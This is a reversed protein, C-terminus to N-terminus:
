PAPLPCAWPHCTATIPPTRAPRTPATRLESHTAHTLARAHHKLSCAVSVCPAAHRRACGRKWGPCLKRCSSHCFLGGKAQPQVDSVSPRPSQWGTSPTRCKLQWHRGSLQQQRRQALTHSRAFSCALSCVLKAVGQVLVCARRGVIPTGRESADRASGVSASGVRGATDRMSSRGAMGDRESSGSPVGDRESSAM